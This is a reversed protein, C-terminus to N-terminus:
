ISQQFDTSEGQRFSSNRAGLRISCPRILVHLPTGSLSGSRTWQTGTSSLNPPKTANAVLNQRQHCLYDVMFQPNNSKTDIINKTAKNRVLASRKSPRRAASCLWVGVAERNTHPKYEELM